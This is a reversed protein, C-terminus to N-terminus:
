EGNGRDTAGNKDPYDHASYVEVKAGYDILVKLYASVDIEDSTIQITNEAQEISVDLAFQSFERPSLSAIGKTGKRYLEMQEDTFRETSEYTYLGGTREVFGVLQDIANKADNAEEMTKFTGIMKLNSSHESGYSNWIRM